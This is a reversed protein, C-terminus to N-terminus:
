MGICVYWCSSRPLASYQSLRLLFGSRYSSPTVAPAHMDVVSDCTREFVLMGREWVDTYAAMLCDYQCLFVCVGSDFARARACLCILVCVRARAGDCM